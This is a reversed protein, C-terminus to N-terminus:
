LLSFNHLLFNDDFVAFLIQYVIVQISSVKTALNIFSGRPSQLMGTIFASQGLIKGMSFDRVVIAHYDRLRMETEVLKAYENAAFSEIFPAINNKLGVLSLSIDHRIQESLKQKQLLYLHTAHGGLVIAVTLAVMAGLVALLSRHKRPM